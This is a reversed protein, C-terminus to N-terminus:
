TSPDPCQAFIINMSVTNCALSSGLKPQASRSYHFSLNHGTDALPVAPSGIVYFEEDVYDQGGFTFEFVKHGEAELTRKNLAVHNTMGSICPKYTDTLMGIQM